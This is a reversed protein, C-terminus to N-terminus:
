KKKTLEEWGPLGFFLPLEEWIKRRGANHLEKSKRVCAKCYNKEWELQWTALASCSVQPFWYMHLLERRNKACNNATCIAAFTDEQWLWKYTETAQRELLSHRGKIVVRQDFVSLETASGESREMAEVFEKMDHLTCIAYFAGPLVSLVDNERALNIITFSIEKDDGDYDILSFCDAVNDFEEFTSPFESELRKTAESYLQQIDYKRGLRLFAAIVALPQSENDVSCYSRDFLAKLVHHLNDATDSVHVVPCGDVLNENEPQPLSFMDRFVSSSASLISRHVRFQTSEAHLIINRDDLWPDGREPITPLANSTDIRPRKACQQEASDSM